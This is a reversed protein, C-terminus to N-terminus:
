PTTIPRSGEERARYVDRKMKETDLDRWSGAVARLAARAASPDYSRLSAETGVEVVDVRFLTGNKELLLPSKAAMDLIGALESDPRVTIKKAEIPM